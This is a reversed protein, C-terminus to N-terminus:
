RSFRSPFPSCLLLANSTFLHILLALGLLLTKEFTTKFTRLGSIANFSTPRLGGTLTSCLELTLRLSRCRRRNWHTTLMAVEEPFPPAGSVVPGGRLRM